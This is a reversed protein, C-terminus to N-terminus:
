AKSVVMDMTLDLTMVSHTLQGISIYNVGLGALSRINGLNVGGSIEIEARGGIRQVAERMHPIDMNDLMIVDAGVTLALMLSDMSQVEIEVRHLPSRQLKAQTLLEKEGWLSIHNDKILIGDSLSRRHIHGGGAVVAALQLDRLGPLTKRTALIKTPHPKVADVFKRTLTAIGCLHSLLNLLTRELSLCTGATAKFSVLDQRPSVEQGDEVLARLECNPLLEQYVELVASGAFVGPERTRVMAKCPQQARQGLLQATVDNDVRDTTWEEQILRRLFVHSLM